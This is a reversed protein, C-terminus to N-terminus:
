RLSKEFIWLGHKEEEILGLEMADSRLPTENRLVFECGQVATSDGFGCDVSASRPAMAVELFLDLGVRGYRSAFVLIGGPKLLAEATAAIVPAARREYITDACLVVDATHRLADSAADPVPSSGAFAFWDLRQASVNAFLDANESARRNCAITAELAEARGSAYLDTAICRGAGIKSAALSPLGLSAGMEIILMDRGAVVPKGPGLLWESLMRASDWCQALQRNIIIEPMDTSGHPDWQVVEWQSPDLEQDAAEESELEQATFLDFGPESDTDGDAGGAM